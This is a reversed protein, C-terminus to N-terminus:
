SLLLLAFSKRQPIPTNMYSWPVRLEKLAPLSQAKNVM